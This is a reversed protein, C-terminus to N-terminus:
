IRGQDGLASRTLTRARLLKMSVTRIKAVNFSWAAGAYAAAGVLSVTLLSTIGTGGVEIKTILIAAAMIVVSAIVGGLGNIDFPLRFARRTLYIALLLGAAETIFTALAAGFLGYTAVLPFMLAVGLVLCFCSQAVSLFPRESLQFSIQFYFQNIVGFLRAVALVPLLFSVGARFEAGVLTGAVQDAALALWVVVPLVVSLLLEVSEKLRERTANDGKDTLTRFVIPFTAAAVSSALMVLFQRPLDAAVGFLGAAGQGLLYAVILRDSAAYLAASLGGISLPLGYRAFQKLQAPQWRAIQVPSGAVNIAAGILSSIGFAAILGLGGWGLEIALLGLALSSASRVLAIAAFRYPRLNAREFEQGIEVASVTIAVFISAALLDASVERYLLIAVPAVSCIAPVTLGFAVIATGRFDVAASTAQYRSVSLRIWAFFVAGLIGAISIGVVYVGYEAPSLLRTYATIAFFGISAPVLHAVLYISFYRNLM